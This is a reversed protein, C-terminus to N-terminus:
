WVYSTVRVRERIGVLIDAYVGSLLKDSWSNVETRILAIHEM